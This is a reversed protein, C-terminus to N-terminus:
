NLNWICHTKRIQVLKLQSHHNLKLSSGIRAVRFIVSEEFTNMLSEFIIMKSGTLRLEHYVSYYLGCMVNCGIDSAKKQGETM